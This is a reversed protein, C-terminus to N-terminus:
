LDAAKRAMVVARRQWVKTLVHGRHRCPAPIYLPYPLYPHTPTDTGLM